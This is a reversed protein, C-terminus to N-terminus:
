GPIDFGNRLGLVNGVGLLAKTEVHIKEVHGVRRSQLKEVAELVGAFTAGGQKAVGKARHRFEVRFVDFLESVGLDSVLILISSLIVVMFVSDDFRLGITGLYPRIASNEFMDVVRRWELSVMEGGGKM